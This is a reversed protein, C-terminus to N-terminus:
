WTLQIKKLELTGFASKIDPAPPVAKHTLDNRINAKTSQQDSPQIPPKPLRALKPIFIKKDEDWLLFVLWCNNVSQDNNFYYGNERSQKQQKEASWSKSILKQYPFPSDKSKSHSTESHRWSLTEPTTSSSSPLRNITELLDNCKGKWHRIMNGERASRKNAM